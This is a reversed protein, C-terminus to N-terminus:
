FKYDIGVGFVKNTRSLVDTGKMGPIGNYNESVKTYDKYDTWFYAVNMTLKPSIRFAAGLGVSYSDLSFSIYYCNRSMMNIM